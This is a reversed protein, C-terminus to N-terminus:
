WKRDYRARKGTNIMVQLKEPHCRIPVECGTSLVFGKPNALGAQLISEVSLEVSIESSNLLANPPLNGVLRVRKGMSDVVQKVDAQDFSFLDASTDPILDLMGSTDGCVHLTIDLNYRHLYEILQRQYHLAFKQYVSRSIVSGSALPDVLVPLGGALICEDCLPIAARLSFDLLRQAEAPHILIDVLFDEVGRLGASTTFPCPIFAFVPLVDGANQYLRNIAEIYVPLRGDKSPDPLRLEEIKDLDTVVPSDLIPVDFDRIHYKSGMAEAIIGVDTFVSLGDHGYKKQAKLQADAMTKGSTCYDALSCEHVTAAHSTLLPYVPPRDPFEDILLLGWRERPNMDGPM